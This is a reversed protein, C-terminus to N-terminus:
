RSQEKQKVLRETYEQRRAAAHLKEDLEREIFDRDASEESLLFYKVLELFLKDSIQKM